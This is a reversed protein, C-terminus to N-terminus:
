GSSPPVLGNEFKETELLFILFSIQHCVDDVTLYKVNAIPTKFLNHGGDIATDARRWLGEDIICNDAPCLSRIIV